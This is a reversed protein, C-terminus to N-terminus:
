CIGKIIMPDYGIIFQMKQNQPMLLWGRIVIGYLDYEITLDNNRQMEQVIYACRLLQLM